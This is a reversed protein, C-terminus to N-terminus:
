ACELCTEHDYYFVRGDEFYDEDRDTLSENLYEEDQFGELIEYGETELEKSIAKIDVEIADMLAKIAGQRKDSIDNYIDVDVHMTNYHNYHSSNSKISFDVNESLFNYPLTRGKGPMLRDRLKVLTDTDLHGYFAMGDGQCYNLSWYIEDTPYGLDSLRQQFRERVDQLAIGSEMFFDSYEQRVKAKAEESLETFKYIPVLVKKM